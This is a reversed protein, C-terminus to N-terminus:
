SHRLPRFIYLGLGSGLLASGIGLALLGYKLFALGLIFGVLAIVGGSITVGKSINRSLRFYREKKRPTRVRVEAGEEVVM